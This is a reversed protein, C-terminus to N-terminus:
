ARFSSFNIDQMKLLRPQITQKLWYEFIVQHERVLDEYLERIEYSKVPVLAEKDAIEEAPDATYYGKIIRHEKEDNQSLSSDL